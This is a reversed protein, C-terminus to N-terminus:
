ESVGTTGVMPRGGTGAAAARERVGPGRGPGRARQAEDLLGRAGRHWRMIWGEAVLFGLNVVLGVVGIVVVGAYTGATDFSRQANLVQFGLGNTSAQMESIVMLILAVSLATRMGVAIKPSAAPLVVRTIQTRRGIGYSRAMDLLQPDVGRVGDVTNLLVPWVAGLAILVVKSANGIGVVVLVFPLLLPPPVARLFEMVPQAAQRVRPALGVLTGLAIGAATAVLYGATFRALSPVLDTGVQEFLWDERLKDVIRSLPPYFVSTSGASTSWWLAVLAVPVVLQLALRAPWSRTM